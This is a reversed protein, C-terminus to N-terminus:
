AAVEALAAVGYEDDRIIDAGFRKWAELVTAGLFGPANTSINVQAPAEGRCVYKENWFISAPKDSAATGVTTLKSNGTSLLAGIHKEANSRTMFMIGMYMGVIGKDIMETRGSQYFNVFKDINLLDSYVDDTVLGYVQGGGSVNNRRILALINTLDKYTAAKRNGTIGTVNSARGDGSTNVILGSKSTLWQYAAYDAIKTELQGAQQIQHNQRKSYNTVIESENSIAIPDAWFQYMTGTKKSDKALKIKVPLSDPEGKHSEGGSGLQPIEYSGADAAENILRSKAYFANNPSLYGALERAYAIKSIEAM